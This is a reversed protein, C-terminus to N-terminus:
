LLGEKRLAIYKGYSLGREKAAKADEILRRDAPIYCGACYGTYYHYSVLKKGCKGCFRPERCGQDSGPM